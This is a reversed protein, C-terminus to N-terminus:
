VSSCPYYSIFSLAWIPMSSDVEVRQLCDGITSEREDTNM